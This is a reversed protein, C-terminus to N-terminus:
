NKSRKPLFLVLGSLLASILPIFGLAFIISTAWVAILSTLAFLV